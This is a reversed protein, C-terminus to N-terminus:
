FSFFVVLFLFPASHANRPSHTLKSHSLSFAFFFFFTNKTCLAASSYHASYHARHVVGLARRYNITRVM